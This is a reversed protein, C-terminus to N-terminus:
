IKEFSMTTSIEGHQGHADRHQEDFTQGLMATIM